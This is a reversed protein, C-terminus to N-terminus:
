EAEGGQHRQDLGHRAPLGQARNLMEAYADSEREPVEPLVVEPATELLIEVGDLKVARVGNQRMVQIYAALETPTIPGPM